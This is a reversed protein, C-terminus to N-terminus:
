IGRGFLSERVGDPGIEKASVVWPQKYNNAVGEFLSKWWLSNQVTSHANLGNPLRKQAPSCVITAYVFKRSKRFLEDVIWNMDEQACHPLVDVALVGDFSDSPLESYEEVAPDYCSVLLVNWYDILSEPLGTVEKAPLKYQWGKGCGYDLLSDAGTKVVLQKIRDMHGVVGTGGYVSHPQKGDVEVCGQHLIKFQDILPYYNVSPFERSLSM